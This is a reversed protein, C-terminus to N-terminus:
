QQYDEDLYPFDEDDDYEDDDYEDDYRSGEKAYELLEDSTMKIEKKDLTETMRTKISTLIFDDDEETIRIVWDVGFHNKTSITLSFFSDTIIDEEEEIEEPEKEDEFDEELIDGDVLDNKYLQKVFLEISYDKQTDKITITQNNPLVMLQIRLNKLGNTYDYDVGEKIHKILNKDFSKFIDNLIPELSSDVRKVLQIIKAYNVDFVKNEM